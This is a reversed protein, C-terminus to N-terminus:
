EPSPRLGTDNGEMARSGPGDMAPIVTQLVRKRAWNASKESAPTAAGQLAKTELSLSFM